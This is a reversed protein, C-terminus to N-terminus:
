LALQQLWITYGICYVCVIVDDFPFMKRTVPGKHLSDVPSRHIGRMYALSASSQQKIQDTGSCASSCVISVDTIQSAMVSMIVDSYHRMQKTIFNDTTWSEHSGNVRTSWPQKVPGRASGIIRNHCQWHLLGSYYTYILRAFENRVIIYGCSIIYFYCHACKIAYLTFFHNWSEYCKNLNSGIDAILLYMTHISIFFACTVNLSQVVIFKSWRLM